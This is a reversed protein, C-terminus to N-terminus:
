WGEKRSLGLFGYLATLWAVAIVVPNIGIAFDCWPQWSLEFSRGRWNMTRPSPCQANAVDFGEQPEISLSVKREELEEDEIEGLEQCALIEPYVECLLPATGDRPTVDGPNEPDLSIPDDLPTPTTIERPIVEVRWPEAMTTRPVLDIVPQRYQQPQTDPIAQPSGVPIRMPDIIPLGVPWPFRDELDEIVTDPLEDVLEWDAPTADRIGGEAAQPNMLRGTLTPGTAVHTDYPHVRRQRNVQITRSCTGPNDVGCNGSQTYGNYSVIYNPDNATSAVYLQAAASFTCGAGYVCAGYTYWERSDGGPDDPTDNIVWRDGLRELGYQFLWQAVLSSVLGAPSVRLATVLRSLGASKDVPLYTPVTLSRGGISATTPAYWKGATLSGAGFPKQYTMTSGSKAWGPSPPLTQWQQAAALSSFAALAAAIVLKALHGM